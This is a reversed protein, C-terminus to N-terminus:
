SHQQESRPKTDAIIEIEFKEGSKIQVKKTEICRPIREANKRKVALTACHRM